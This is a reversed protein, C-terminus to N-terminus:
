FATRRLPRHIVYGPPACHIGTVIKKYCTTFKALDFLETWMAVQQTVDNKGILNDIGTAPSVVSWHDTQRTGRYRFRGLGGLTYSLHPRGDYQGTGPHVSLNLRQDTSHAEDRPLRYCHTQTQQRRRCGALSTTTASMLSRVDLQTV